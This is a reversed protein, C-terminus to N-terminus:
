NKVITYFNNRIVRSYIITNLSIYYKSHTWIYHLMVFSFQRNTNYEHVSCIDMM